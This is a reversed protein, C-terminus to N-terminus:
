RGFALTGNPRPTLKAIHMRRPQRIPHNTRYEGPTYSAYILRLAGRSDIFAQAGGMGSEAATSGMLPRPQHAACPGAPGVCIAYGTAYPSHGSRDAQFSNASYFLYWRGHYRIMSPNEM